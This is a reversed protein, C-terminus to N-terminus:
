PVCSILVTLRFLWVPMWNVFVMLFYADLRGASIMHEKIDTYNNVYYKYDDAWAGSVFLIYIHMLANFCIIILIQKKKNNLVAPM